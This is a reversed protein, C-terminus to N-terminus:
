AVETSNRTKFDVLSAKSIEDNILVQLQGVQDDSLKFGALASDSDDLLQDCVCNQLAKHNSDDDASIAVVLMLLCFAFITPRKM